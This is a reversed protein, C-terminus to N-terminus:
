KAFNLIIVYFFPCLFSSTKSSCKQCLKVSSRLFFYTQFIALM